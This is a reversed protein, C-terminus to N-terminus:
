QRSRWYDLSQGIRDLPRTQWTMIGAFAASWTMLSTGASSNTANEKECIKNSLQIIPGIILVIQDYVQQDAYPSNDNLQEAMQFMTSAWLCMDQVRRQIEEEQMDAFSDDADNDEETRDDTEGDMAGGVEGEQVRTLDICIASALPASPLVTTPLDGPGPGNVPRLSPHCWIPCRREHNVEVFFNEPVKDVSQVLHKCVLWRSHFFAPCTCVWKYPLPNYRANLPLTIKMSECRRWEMHLAQRWAALGRSRVTNTICLDLHWIYTPGLKTILVWVLYDICRKHNHHLYEKKIHHWSLTHILLHIHLLASPISVTVQLDHEDQASSDRQLSFSGMSEM